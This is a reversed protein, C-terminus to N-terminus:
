AVVETEVSRQLRQELARDHDVETVVQRFRHNKGPGCSMDCEGFGTWLTWECDIPCFDENCPIFREFNEPCPDGGNAPERTVHRKQLQQGGGCTVSCEGENYWESVLCDLEYYLYNEIYFMKGYASTHGEPFAESQPDFHHAAGICVYGQGADPKAVLPCGISRLGDVVDASWNIDGLNTGPKMAVLVASNFRLHEMYDRFREGEASGLAVDYAGNTLGDINFHVVEKLYGDKSSVVAVNMAHGLSDGSGTEVPPDPKIIKGGVQFEAKKEYLEARFILHEFPNHPVYQAARCDHM